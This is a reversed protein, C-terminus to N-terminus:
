LTYKIFGDADDESVMFGALIFEKCYAGGNRFIERM